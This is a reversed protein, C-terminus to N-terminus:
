WGLDKGHAKVRREVERYRVRDYEEIDRGTLLLSTVNDRDELQPNIGDRFTARLEHLSSGLGPATWDTGSM